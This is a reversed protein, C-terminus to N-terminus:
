IQLVQCRSTNHWLFFGCAGLLLQIKVKIRILLVRLTSYVVLVTLKGTYLWKSWDPSLHTWSAVSSRLWQLVNHISEFLYILFLDSEVKDSQFDDLVSPCYTSKFINVLTPTPIEYDWDVGPGAQSLVSLVFVASLPKKQHSPRSPHLINIHVEQDRWVPGACLCWGHRQARQVLCGQLFSQNGWGQHDKELLWNHGQVYHWSKPFFLSTNSQDDFCSKNEYMFLKHWVAQDKPRGGKRGSQMMMRRRVTDFPYSIIGAAATVTQAIMWSIVIHTNKPDQLM